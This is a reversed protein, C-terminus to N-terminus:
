GDEATNPELAGMYTIGVGVRPKRGPRGIAVHIRWPGVAVDILPGGIGLPQARHRAISADLAVAREIQVDNWKTGHHAVGAGIDAAVRRAAKVNASDPVM